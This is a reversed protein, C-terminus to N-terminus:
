KINLNHAVNLDHAVNIITQLACSIMVEKKLQEIAIERKVQSQATKAIRDFNSIRNISKQYRDIVAINENSMTSM